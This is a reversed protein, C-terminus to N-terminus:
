CNAAYNDKRYIAPTPTSGVADLNHAEVLGLSVRLIEHYCIRYTVFREYLLKMQNLTNFALFDRWINLRLALMRSWSQTFMLVLAMVKTSELTVM